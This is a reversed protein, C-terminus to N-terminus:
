LNIVHLMFSTAEELADFTLVAQGTTVVISEINLPTGSANESYADIVSTTLINVNQITVTTDGVACSVPTTWVNLAAVDNGLSVIASGQSSLTSEDTDLRNLVSVVRDDIDDIGKDMVNLNEATMPTATSPYAAWKKRIYAKTNPM